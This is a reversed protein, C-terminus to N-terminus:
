RQAHSIDDLRKVSPPTAPASQLWGPFKRLVFFVVASRLQLWLSGVGSLPEAAVERCSERMLRELAGALEANFGADLVFVNAELNLSLSTPDLNSSGVTAWEGDVLAVKGHLPRECYEFVRVGAHQLHRYLLSAATKVIAMDPQGQLVLRVDVGRRAARRLDRLLRWGPFFYANAIWVRDRAARIAVRYQQEIDTPHEANDRVVFRMRAGDEPARAVAQEAFARRFWRRWRWGAREPALASRTFDEIQAVLPGQIEVAYDQKAEPGAERLHDISYNIGGVFAVEGDVVVIKRHMRRFLNLRTGFLRKVPEFVHLRVGSEVLSALFGQSLDPSGWGDILCDVQVGRRAADTLAAHLMLGVKDEFLIFTELRVTRRAQGICAFVRPYFAEGNELLRLRNGGVWPAGRAM